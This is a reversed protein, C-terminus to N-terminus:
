KSLTIYKDKAKQWVKDSLDQAMNQLAEDETKYGSTSRIFETANKAEVIVWYLRDHTAIAIVPDGIHLGYIFRFNDVRLTLAVSLTNARM